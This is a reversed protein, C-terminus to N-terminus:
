TGRIAFLKKKLSIYVSDFEFTSGSPLRKISSRSVHADCLMICTNSPSLLFRSISSFNFYKFLTTNQHNFCLLFKSKNKEQHKNDAPAKLTLASGNLTMMAPLKCKSCTNYPKLKLASCQEITKTNEFCDSSRKIENLFDTNLHLTNAM